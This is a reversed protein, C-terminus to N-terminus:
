PPTLLSQYTAPPLPLQSVCRYKLRQFVLLGYFLCILLGCNEKPERKEFSRLDMLQDLAHLARTGVTDILAQFQYPCGEYDVLLALVAYYFELGHSKATFTCHGEKAAESVHSGTQGNNIRPQSKSLPCKDGATWELADSSGSPIQKQLRDYFYNSEIRLLWIKHDERLQFPSVDRLKSRVCENWIITKSM